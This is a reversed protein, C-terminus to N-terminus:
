ALSAYAYIAPYAAAALVSVTTLITILRAM